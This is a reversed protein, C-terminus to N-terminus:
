VISSMLDRCRSGGFVAELALVRVQAGLPVPAAFWCRGVLARVGIICSTNIEGIKNFILKWTGTYAPDPARAPPRQSPTLRVGRAVAGSCLVTDGDTQGDMWGDIRGRAASGSSLGVGM